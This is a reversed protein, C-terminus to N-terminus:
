SSDKMQSLRLEAMKKSAEYPDLLAVLRPTLEQLTKRMAPASLDIDLVSPDSKVLREFAKAWGENSWFKMEEAWEARVEKKEAPSMGMTAQELGKSRIQRDDYFIDQGALLLMVAQQIATFKKFREDKEEQSVFDNRKVDYDELGM